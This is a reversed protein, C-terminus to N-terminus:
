ATLRREAQGLGARGGLVALLGTALVLWLPAGLDLIGVVAFGTVLAILTFGIDATYRRRWGKRRRRLDRRASWGRWGVYGAFLTLAGFTVRTPPDLAPVGLAVAAALALVMTWLSALYLRFGAPTADDPNLVLLGCVLAVLGGAVHVAILITHLM